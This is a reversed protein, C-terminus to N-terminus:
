AAKLTSTSQMIRLSKELDKLRTVQKGAALIVWIWSKVGAAHALAFLSEERRTNM